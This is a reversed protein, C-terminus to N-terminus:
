RNKQRNKKHTTHTKIYKSILQKGSINQLYKRIAKENTIEKALSFGKTQHLGIKKKIKAKVAQAKPSMNFFFFFTALILM